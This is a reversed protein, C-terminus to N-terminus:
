PQPASPREIRVPLLVDVAGLEMGVVVGRRVALLGFM